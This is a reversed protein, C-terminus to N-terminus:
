KPLRGVIAQLEQQLFSAARSPVQFRGSSLGNIMETFATSSEDERPDLWSKSRIAADFFYPLVADTQPKALLDKRTPPLLALKSWTTVFDADAAIAFLAKMANTKQKGANVISLGIVESATVESRSDRMQPVQAIGFNLHPNREKILKYDSARGIYMALKEAQFADRSQQQTRNWSYLTKTPNAFDMYFRLASDVPPEGTTRTTSDLSVTTKWNQGRYVLPIGVQMLMTSIIDKAHTINEYEGLAIASYDFTGTVEGRKTLKPQLTLIDDWYKPADIISEKTFMDRNWYLVMPDLLLPVAIIGNPGLFSKAADVYTQEYKTVPLSAYPVSQLKTELRLVRNSSLVVLDPARNDAIAEILQSEFLEPKVFTYSVNYAKRNVQNFNSLADQIGNRTEIDGWIAVKIIGDASGGGGGGQAFIVIAAIIAVVLAGLFVNQFNM